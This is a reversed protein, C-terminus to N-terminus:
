CVASKESLSRRTVAAGLPDFKLWIRETTSANKIEDSLIQELDDFLKELIEITLM